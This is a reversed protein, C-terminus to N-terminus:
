VASISKESSREKLREVIRADTASADLRNLMRRVMSKGANKGTQQEAAQAATIAEDLANMNTGRARYDQLSTHIFNISREDTSIGFRELAADLEKCDIGGWLQVLLPVGARNVARNRGIAQAIGQAYKDMLWARVEDNAPMPVGQPSTPGSPENMQGDWAPWDIGAQALAARDAGYSSAIADPSLLPMGVLALSRGSWNNHGRDHAGFWGISVGTRTEFELAATQAADDCDCADQSYRLSAKHTLIAAPKPLQAAIRELEKMRSKANRQYEGPGVKGRAYLYGNVRQIHHNQPAQAEIVAGGAAEVIGRLPLPLTADMFLVSGHKQAWEIVPSLEYAVWHNRAARLVGSEVSAALVGLARLPIHFSAGDDHLGVREWPATGASRLAGAKRARQYVDLVRPGDPQGDGAIAAVVSSFLGDIEPLLGRLARAHRLDDEEAKSRVEKAQLLSSAKDLREALAPLADRWGAVDGARVQVPQALEISEDVIILRQTKETPVGSVIDRPQWFGIAESFSAIPLVLVQADLMQPLSEYLFRCPEHKAPDEGRRKFFEVARENGREAEVRMGHLCTKCVSQAPRHNKLGAVEVADQKWCTWSAGIENGPAQRGYYHTASVGSAAFRGIYEDALAHTPVLVAFPLGRLYLTQATTDVSSSKGLGVTVQLGIAPIAPAAQGAACADIRAIHQACYDSQAKRM